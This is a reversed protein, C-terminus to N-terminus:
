HLLVNITKKKISFNTLSGVNINNKEKLFFFVKTELVVKNNNNKKFFIIFQIDLFIFLYITILLFFSFQISIYM